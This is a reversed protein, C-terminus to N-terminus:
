IDQPLAINANASLPKTDIRKLTGGAQGSAAGPRAPPQPVVGRSEGGVGGFPGSGAPRPNGSPPVPKEASADPAERMESRSASQTETGLEPAEAALCGATALALWAFGVRRM